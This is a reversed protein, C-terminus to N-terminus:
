TAGFRLSFGRISHVLSCRQSCENNAMSRGELYAAEPRANIRKAVVPVSCMYRNPRFSLSGDVIAILCWILFNIAFSSALFAVATDLPSDGSM